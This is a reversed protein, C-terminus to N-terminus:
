RLGFEAVLHPRQALLRELHSDPWMEIQPPDSGQNRREIWDVADTTFRGTTAVIMVDVRPPEWLKMQACVGAVDETSISRSQWHKCQIIVRRRTTGSLSDSQVRSVSLDRGRDPAQTKTLWQPNEYGSADGIICFILREFQESSLKTWNLATTVPGVPHQSVLDGLDRADVPLPEHEAFFGAEIDNRVSPWDLEIITYLDCVMAFALHRRLDSWRGQRTTASGLLRDIQSVCATLADWEPGAIPERSERPSGRERLGTLTAEVQGIQEKLKARVLEGRKRNFRYRYAHVDEGPQFVDRETSAAAEPAEFHIEQADLRSQAIDDLDMPRSAIRWGDIAPLANCLEDFARCLDNYARGEPSAGMFSIGNPIEQEVQKWVKELRTINAEVLDFQRLAEDLTVPMGCRLDLRRWLFLLPLRM